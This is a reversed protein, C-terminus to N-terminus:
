FTWKAALSPIVYFKNCEGKNNYVFNNSVEIETGLSINIGDMGKLTNFNVWFQPQSLLIFKGKALKDYWVDM